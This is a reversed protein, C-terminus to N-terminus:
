DGFVIRVSAYAREDESVAEFERKLRTIDMFLYWHTAWYQNRADYDEPEVTMDHARLNNELVAIEAGIAESDREMQCSQKLM